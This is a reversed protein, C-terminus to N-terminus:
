IDRQLDQTIFSCEQIRLILGGDRHYLFVGCAFHGQLRPRSRPVGFKKVYIDEIDVGSTAPPRM